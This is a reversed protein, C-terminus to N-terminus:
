SRIAPAGTPDILRRSYRSLIAPCDLKAALALTLDRVGIDYAIHREFEAAALELRGYGQPLMNSAHDCLILLGFKGGGIIELRNEPDILSM